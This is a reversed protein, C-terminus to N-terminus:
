DDVLPIDRNVSIGEDKGEKIAAEKLALFVDPILLAGPPRTRLIFM